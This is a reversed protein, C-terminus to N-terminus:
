KLNLYFYLLSSSSLSFPPQCKNSEPYQSSFIYTINNEKFDAREFALTPAISLKMQGFSRFVIIEKIKSGVDYLFAPDITSVSDPISIRELYVFRTMSAQFLKVVTNPIIYTTDKKFRPYAILTKM